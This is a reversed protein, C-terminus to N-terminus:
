NLEHHFFIFSNNNNNEATSYEGFNREFREFSYFILDFSDDTSVTRKVFPANPAEGIEANKM